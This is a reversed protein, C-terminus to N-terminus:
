AVSTAELIRSILIKIEGPFAVDDSVKDAMSKVLSEMDSDKVVKHNVEVHVEKAGNMIAVDTVGKFSRIAQDIGSLRNQYGEELNVRAGPRAGSFTDAAKLVYSLSTEMVIDNHHSLVTDCVLRNEGYRDAYDASIVAHSGEIKYDIAKGIDHLLGVKKSETPDLGLETGLIGALTAVEVTHHWQNQRYSTRWNLYGILKQIEPHIGSIELQNVAKRGLAIAQKELVDRHKTYIPQFGDWANPHKKLLENFTLRVAERNIGAGGALKIIPITNEKDALLDIEIGTHEKLADILPQGQAAVTDTIGQHALEVINISKPWYFVPAYRAMTRALMRDSVRRSNSNLEDKLFNLTKQSQLTFKEVINQSIVNQLSEPESEARKGLSEQIEATKINVGDLAVQYQQRRLEVKAERKELNGEMKLVRSEEMQWTRHRLEIDEETEKLAITREEIESDMDELMIKIRNEDRDSDSKKRDLVQEKADNLIENKQKIHGAALKNPLMKFFILFMLWGAGTSALGLYIYPMYTM